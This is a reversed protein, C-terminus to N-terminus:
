RRSAARGGDELAGRNWGARAGILFTFQKRGHLDLIVFRATIPDAHTVGPIPRIQDATSAPIVSTDGLFNHVGPQGVFLDAGVRDQYASIQVQFGRWLGELLFILGLAVGIGAVAIFLRRRDALINRRAVPVRGFVLDEGQRLSM